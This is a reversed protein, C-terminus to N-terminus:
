EKWWDKHWMWVEDPVAAGRALEEGVLLLPKVNQCAECADRFLLRTRAVPGM